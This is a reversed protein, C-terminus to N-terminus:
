DDEGAVHIGQEKGVKRHGFPAGYSIGPKTSRDGAAGPIARRASRFRRRHRRSAQRTGQTEPMSPVAPMDTRPDRGAYGGRGPKVNPGADNHGGPYAGADGGPGGGGRPDDPDHWHPSREERFEIM